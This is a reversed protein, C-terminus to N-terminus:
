VAMQLTKFAAADKTDGDTRLQVRWAVQGVDAYREQLYKVSLTGADRIAYARFIDGFGLVKATSAITAVFPDSEIPKGLLRDPEGERIGLQWLYNNDSGKLKRIVGITTDNAVWRGNIRYPRIVSHYLDIVEDATIAANSAATKGVTAGTFLGRPQATGTGVVFHAGSALAIDDTARRSIFGALDVVGTDQVFEDDAKVIKAYKYADLIVEDFEEADDAIATGETTITVASADASVRPLHLPNGGETTIVEAFERVVGMERQAEILTNVWSEPVTYGGNADVNAALVSREETSLGKGGTRLYADLASRYEDSNRLAARAAPTNARTVSREDADAATPPAQRLEDERSQMAELRRLEDTTADFDATYRDDKQREEATLGRNEAAIGDLLARQEHNINARKERLETIREAITAM